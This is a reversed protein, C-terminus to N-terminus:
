PLMRVRDMTREGPVNQPSENGDSATSGLQKIGENPVRALALEM